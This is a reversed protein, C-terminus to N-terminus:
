LNSYFKELEIYAQLVDLMSQIYSSEVNLYNNNATTLDLSSVLGANYKRNVNDYVRKSIEVNKKYADYQDLATQLNLKITRDQTMLVDNLQEKDNKLADLQLRAQHVKAKRQGSSFIPINLNVALSHNPSMNFNPEIIQDLYNYSASLTPLYESKALQVQKESLGEQQLLLQFDINNNINFIRVLSAYFSQPDFLEDLTETLEIKSAPSIGIQLKLLDQAIAIQRNTTRLSSELMIVQMSLQDVDTLEAVGAKNMIATQRYVEKINELNQELINKARQAVLIGYYADMVQQKVELSTKEVNKALMEEYIKAMQVGVIYTGSFILQTATANLNSTNNFEMPQGMLETSAGFFTSYDVRANIQPLGQAIAEKKAYHAEQVSLGANKMDRNYELALLKAQQLSLTYVTAEKENNKVHSILREENQANTFLCLLCFLSCLITKM